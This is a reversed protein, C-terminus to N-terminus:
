NKKNKIKRLVIESPDRNYMVTDGKHGIVNNQMIEYQRSNASESCEAALGETNYHTNEKSM